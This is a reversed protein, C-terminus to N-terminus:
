ISQFNRFSEQFSNLIFSGTTCIATRRRGRCTTSRIAQHCRLDSHFGQRWLALMNVYWNSGYSDWSKILICEVSIGENTASEAPGIVVIDIHTFPSSIMNDSNTVFCTKLLWSIPVNEQSEYLFHLEKRPLSLYSIEHHEVWILTPGTLAECTWIEFAGATRGSRQSFFFRHVVIPLSFNWGPPFCICIAAKVNM